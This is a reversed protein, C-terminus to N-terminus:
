SLPTKDILLEQYVLDSEIHHSAWLENDIM